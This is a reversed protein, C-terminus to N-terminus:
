ECTRQGTLPDFTCAEGEPEPTDVATTETTTTPKDEANADTLIGFRKGASRFTTCGKAGGKYAQIYLGKFEEFTVDPGVNCTKSCASDIYKQATCLVKVHDAAAISDATQGKIGWTGFAYDPVAKYLKPGDVTQVMRDTELAFPPEIGSSVNDATLSITGTPAISLLHSNRIGHTAIKNRLWDPLRKIFPADLYKEADFLPFAGKEEALSNSAEYVETSLAYLMEAMWFRFEYSGYPLGLAEGANAVGTVGIGIRRKNLAEDKQEQLPYETRDIVNDLARVVSPVDKLLQELDFWRAGDEGFPNVTSIYKTLNFSGLLCAGHPPLPQEGCPNTAEITECYSLNNERNIRDIFLVGPEAYDWTARMIDDWLAQPDVMKYTRGEFKLPFKRGEELCEMFDDTIGISMNFQTLETNNQKAHIYEEIDPHDVNLVAMMAGRRHGASAITRCLADFIGMFSLPGSAISDLSVIRDGNPRLKSFNFGIGGGRRMTEAAQGLSKIISEMSDEITMSVFCNFATTSRPSGMDSQVRGAFLFRQNRTIDLLENFHEDSDKLAHANRATQHAFSESNLRYKTAHTEEAIPLTPGTM